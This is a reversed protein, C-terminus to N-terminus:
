KNIASAINGSFPMASMALGSVAAGTQANSLFGQQQIGLASIDQSLGTMASGFGLTAGYQSSLSALGGAIGSGGSAGLVAAQARARERRIQFERFSQRRSRQERLQQQQQQKAAVQAGARTAKKTQSINYATGAVATAGLGLLVATTSIAM